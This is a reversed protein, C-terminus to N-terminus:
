LLDCIQSSLKVPDKVELGSILRAQAYLIETYSTLKDKDSEFLNKLSATLKHNMNIELVTQALNMNERGPLQSLVRAMEASIYGESVLSVPHEGISNSFRVSKVEGKLVEGM